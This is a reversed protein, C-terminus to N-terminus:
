IEIIIFPAEGATLAVDLARYQAIDDAFHSLLILPQSVMIGLGRRKAQSLDNSEQGPNGDMQSLMINHNDLPIIVVIAIPPRGTMPAANGLVSQKSAQSILDFFGIHGEQIPLGM